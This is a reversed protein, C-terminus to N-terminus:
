TKVTDDSLERKGMDLVRRGVLVKKLNIDKIKHGM